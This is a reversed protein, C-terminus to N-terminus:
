EEPADEYGENGDDEMNESNEESEDEEGSSNEEETASEYDYFVRAQNSFRSSRRLKFGTPLSNQPIARPEGHGCEERTRKYRELGAGSDSASGSFNYKPLPLGVSATQKKLLNNCMGLNGNQENLDKL